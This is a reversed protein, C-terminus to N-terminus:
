MHIRLPNKQNKKQIKKALEGLTCPPKRMCARSVIQTYRYMVHMNYFLNICLANKKNVKKKILKKKSARTFWAPTEEYVCMLLFGCTGTCLVYLRLCSTKETEKKSTKKSARTLWAPTEEYVCMVFFDCTGTCSICMVIYVYNKKKPRV